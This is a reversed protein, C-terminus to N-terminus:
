KPIPIRDDRSGSVTRENSRGFISWRRLLPQPQAHAAATATFNDPIGQSTNEQADFSNVRKSTPEAALLARLRENEAAVSDPSDLANLDVTLDDVALGDNSVTQDQTRRDNKLRPPGSNDHLRMPQLQSGRPLSQHQGFSDGDFRFGSSPNRGVGPVHREDFTRNTANGDHPVHNSAANASDSDSADRSPTRPRVLRRLPHQQMIRQTAQQLQDNETRPSTQQARLADPGITLVVLCAVVCILIPLMFKTVGARSENGIDHRTTTTRQQEVFAGPARRSELKTSRSTM